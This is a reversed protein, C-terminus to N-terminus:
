EVLEEIIGNIEEKLQILKSNGKPKPLREREPKQLLGAKHWIIQLNEKLKNRVTYQDGEADPHKNNDRKGLGTNNRVKKIERKASKIM